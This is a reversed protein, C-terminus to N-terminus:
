VRVRMQLQTDTNATRLVTAYKYQPTRGAEGGRNDERREQRKPCVGSAWIDRETVDICISEREKELYGRPHSQSM